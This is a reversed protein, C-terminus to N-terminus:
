MHSMISPKLKLNENKKLMSSLPKETLPTQSYADYYPCVQGQTPVEPKQLSHWSRFRGMSRGRRRSGSDGPGPESRRSGAPLPRLAISRPRPRRRAPGTTPPAAPPTPARVPHSLILSSGFDRPPRHTPACRAPPRFALFRIGPEGRSRPFAAEKGEWAPPRAGCTGPERHNDSCRRSLLTWQSGSVWKILARHLSM